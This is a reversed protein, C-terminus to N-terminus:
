HFTVFKKKEEERIWNLLSFTIIINLYRPGVSLYLRFFANDFFDLFCCAFSQCNWLIRICYTTIAVVDSSARPVDSKKKERLHISPIVIKKLACSTQSKVNLIQRFTKLNFNFFLSDLQILQHVENQVVCFSLKKLQWCWIFRKFPAIWLFTM